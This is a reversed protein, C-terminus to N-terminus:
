AARAPYRHRSSASSPPYLTLTPNPSFATALLASKPTTGLGLVPPMATAPSSVTGVHKGTCEDSTTERHLPSLVYGSRAPFEDKYAPDPAWGATREDVGQDDIFWEGEQVPLEDDVVLIEQDSGVKVTSFHRFTRQLIEVYSGYEDEPVPDELIAFASDLQFYAAGLPLRWPPLQRVADPTVSPTPSSPLSSSSSFRLISTYPRFFAWDSEMGRSDERPRRHRDPAEPDIDYQYLRRWKKAERVDTGEPPSRINWLTLEFPSRRHAIRLQQKAVECLSCEKGGTFLTLRPLPLKPPM